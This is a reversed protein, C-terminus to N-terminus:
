SSWPCGSEPAFTLPFPVDITAFVSISPLKLISNGSLIFLKTIEKIPISVSSTEIVFPGIVIIRFLSPCFSSSTTTIPYPVVLLFSTVPAIEVM